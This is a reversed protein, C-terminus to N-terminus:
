QGESAAMKKSAEHTTQPSLVQTGPKAIVPPQQQLHYLKLYKLFTGHATNLAISFGRYGDLWGLRIIYGHFFAWAPNILMKFWGSRRGAGYMSQAAMSSYRNNKEIHSELTPFSYHLLDGRLHTVTTGPDLDLREHPNVGAWRAIRRNFIRTKRDPYWSGRRIFQGCYNTCRNMSYANASPNKKLSIISQILTEDPLEDADVSFVLDHTALAIAANKQQIYDQFFGQKVLAGHNKAIAVTNDSSYSDLVIIEDAIPQLADICRAINREENYTIIIASLSDM